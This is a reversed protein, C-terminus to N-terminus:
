HRGHHQELLRAAFEARADDSMQAVRDLLLGQGIALREQLMGRMRALRAEVAARDFPVARLEEALAAMEARHRARTSGNDRYAARLARGIARRDEESLARSLPGGMAALRPPGHDHWGAGGSLMVGALAGAVALNLGLSVVLLLRVWGGTKREAMQTMM